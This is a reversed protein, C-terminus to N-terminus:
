VNGAEELRQLEITRIKLDLAHLQAEENRKAQEDCRKLYAMTLQIILGIVMGVVGSAVGLQAWTLGFVAIDPPTQAIVQSGKEAACVVGSGASLACGGFTLRKGFIDIQM